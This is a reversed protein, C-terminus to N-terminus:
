PVLRLVADKLNDKKLPDGGCLLRVQGSKMARSGANRAVIRAKCSADTALM